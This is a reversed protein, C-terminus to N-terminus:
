ALFKASTQKLAFARRVKADVHLDTLTKLRQHRSYQGRPRDSRKSWFAKLRHRYKSGKNMVIPDQQYDRRKLPLGAVGQHLLIVVPTALTPLSLVFTSLRTNRGSINGVNIRISDYQMTSLTLPSAKAGLTVSLSNPVSSPVLKIKLNRPVEVSILYPRKTTRGFKVLVSSYVELNVKLIQVKM